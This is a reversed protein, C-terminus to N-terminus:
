IEVWTVADGNNNGDLYVHKHLFEALADEDIHLDPFNHYYGIVESIDDVGVLEAANVVVAKFLLSEEPDAGTNEAHVKAAAIADAQSVFGGFVEVSGGCDDFGFGYSDVGDKLRKIIEKDNIIIM